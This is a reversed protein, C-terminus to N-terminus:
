GGNALRREAKKLRAKARIQGVLQALGGAYFMVILVILVGSVITMIDGNKAFFPVYSKLLDNIGYILFVGFFAGWLSKTGGIIVAGLINLSTSLTLLNETTMFSGIYVFYIVGSIAAYM